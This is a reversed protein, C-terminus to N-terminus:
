RTNSPFSEVFLEKDANSKGHARQRTHCEALCKNLAILVKGLTRPVRCVPSKGNHSNRRPTSIPSKGISTSSQYRPHCSPVCPLPRSSRCWPRQPNTASVPQPHRSHRHSCSTCSRSSRHMTEIPPAAKQVPIRQPFRKLEPGIFKTSFQSGSGYIFEGM